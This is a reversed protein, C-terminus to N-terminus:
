EILSQQRRSASIRERRRRSARRTCFRMVPALVCIRLDHRLYSPLGNPLRAALAQESMPEPSAFLLAEVIREAHYADTAGAAPDGEGLEPAADESFDWETADTM